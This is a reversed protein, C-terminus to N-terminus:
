SFGSREGFRTVEIRPFVRWGIMCRRPSQTPTMTRRCGRQQPTRKFMRAAEEDTMM